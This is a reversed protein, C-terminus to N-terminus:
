EKGPKISGSVAESKIVNEPNGYYRIDGGSTASLEISQTANVKIDAGSTVSVVANKSSLNMTNIDAGSTAKLNITTAIGKLKLDAGSTASGSLNEAEISLNVDCGSTAEIDVSNFILTGNARLDSGSTSKITELDKFSVMVKKSKAYGINKTTSIKLVGNEVETTIIDHLNEDAQVKISEVDDQTLIVDLGNSTHIGTFSSSVEREQTKVNGDGTVGQIFNCSLFLLTLMASVTMKVLTTM